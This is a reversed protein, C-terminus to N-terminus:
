QRRVITTISHTYANGNAVTQDKWEWTVIINIEKNNLGHDTVTRTVTYPFDKRNRIDRRVPEAPITVLIDFPTNRASIMNEEAIRVAEDRLVNIMNSDIGVLATQMMALSVLLFVVMAILVEVLTLGQNNKLVHTQIQM